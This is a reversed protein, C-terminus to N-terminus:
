PPAGEASRVEADVNVQAGNDLELALEVVDGPKLEHKLDVLRFHLRDSQLRMDLGPPVVVLKRRPQSGVTHGKLGRRQL